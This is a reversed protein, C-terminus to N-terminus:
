MGTQLDLNELEDRLHDIFNNIEKVRDRNRAVEEEQHIREMLAALWGNARQIIDDERNDIKLMHTDHSASVANTITDKDVLLLRLEEPIEDDLENKVYKELTIIAIELVREHHVNELDRIQSILGQVQEVFVAVMDAMAREFDKITDELQDVLQLEYGMLTDWLKDVEGKFEAVKDELMKPDSMLAFDAFVKKKYRNFEQIKVIGMDKNEVKAEKVCTYFEEVERQRKAHEALGHDFVQKCIGVMKEKFVVLLEDVGPLAALKPAEPDDHFMSDFLHPGDLNEVYADKQRSFEKNREEQEIRKSELATEDAVLEEIAYRYQEMAAARTNQDILRFDLYVLTPVHAVVYPKYNEDECFPNGGLNLTQLNKFKRLYVLNELTNLNNNGISFVHLKTLKDMNELTTIRNNYLTLDELNTLSDLGEIVEINNFSLDLWVLNKLTNLGEIREIINNDLQLKVLNKFQWLNDVKLINKFDLRLQTVDTFDIGEQKAIRGAEDKPGQEEVAKQLMDEDVVAPEVTDYLRSM